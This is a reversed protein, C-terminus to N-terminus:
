DLRAPGHREIVRMAGLEAHEAAARAAAPSAFARESHRDDNRSPGLPWAPQAAGRFSLMRYFKPNQGAVPRLTM